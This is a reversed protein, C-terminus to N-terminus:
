PAKTRPCQTCPSLGAEYIVEYRPMPFMGLPIACYQNGTDCYSSQFIRPWVTHIYSTEVAGYKDPLLASNLCGAFLDAIDSERNKASHVWSIQTIREAGVVDNLKNELYPRTVNEHDFGKVHSFRLELEHPGKPWLEAIRGLSRYMKGSVYNYLYGRDRVYRGSVEAKVTYVYVVSIGTLKAIRRAAYKRREHSRIKKWTLISNEPTGFEQKLEQQLARVQPAYSEEFVIAAMGFHPSSYPSKALHGLDGTEDIYALLKPM